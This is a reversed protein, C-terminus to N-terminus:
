RLKAAHSLHTISPAPRPRCPPANYIYMKEAVYLTKLPQTILIVSSCKNKRVYVTLRLYLLLGCFICCAVTCIQFAFSQIICFISSFTRGCGQLSYNAHQQSSCYKSQVIRNELPQCTIVISSLNQKASSYEYGQRQAYQDPSRTSKTRKFCFIRFRM